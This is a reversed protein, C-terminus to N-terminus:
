VYVLINCVIGIAIMALGIWLTDRTVSAKKRKEEKGVKYEYYGGTDMTFRRPLFFHLIAKASYGFIDFFGTSSIWILASFGFNFIGVPFFGDSLAHFISISELMEPPNTYRSYAIFGALVLDVALIVIRKIWKKKNENM